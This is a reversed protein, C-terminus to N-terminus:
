PYVGLKVWRGRAAVQVPLNLKLAEVTARGVPTRGLIVTNGEAFALHENWDQTRPNYLDVLAGTEPDAATMQIGKHLNCLPCALWLNDENTAGGRSLPVIHEIHFTVAVLQQPMLCYGCRYRARREVTRRLAASIRTM